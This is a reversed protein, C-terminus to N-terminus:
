FARVRADSTSKALQFLRDALVQGSHIDPWDVLLSMIRFDGAMGELSCAFISDEINTNRVASAALKFGCGVLRATLDDGSPFTEPMVERKCRM